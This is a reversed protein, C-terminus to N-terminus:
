LRSVSRNRVLLYVHRFTEYKEQLAHWSWSRNALDGADGGDDRHKAREAM